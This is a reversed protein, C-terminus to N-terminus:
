LERISYEKFWLDMYDTRIGGMAKSSIVPGHTSGNDVVEAALTWSGTGSLDTYVRIRVSGDALDTVVSKLGVWKEEPILNPNTSRNYAGSIVKKSALTYYTGNLKKKVIVSGDVRLGTYYLNNGDKYRNFFLFGNHEARLPSDSLNYKRINFYAKQEVNKFTSKTLLRFINQPHYGNDTDRPNSAAYLERWRDSSPLSGQNTKGIGNEVKFYAGSNLWWQSSGSASASSSEELSLASSLGYLVSSLVPLPDPSPTGESRTLLRYNDFSVDMFDAYIGARGRGTIVGGTGSGTDTKEALLKWGSQSKDGYMRVTVSGNSNTITEIALRIPANEPLLTPNSSASYSGTFYPVEALTYYTGNVRKKLSIKGDMRLSGYYFNRSDKYRAILDIGDWSHRNKSNELNHDAITVTVEQRVNEWTDKTLLQFLNQPHKGTDSTVPALSAYSKYYSDTSPVDGQITTGVGNGQILKGGSLVWFYPSSSESPTNTEHVTGATSFSHEFAVSSFLAEDARVVGARIDALVGIGGYSIFVVALVTLSRVITRFLSKLIM